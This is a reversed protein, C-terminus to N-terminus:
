SRGSRPPCPARLGRDRGDEEVPDRSIVQRGGPAKGGHEPQLAVAVELLLSPRGLRFRRPSRTATRRSRDAARSFVEDPLEDDLGVLAVPRVAVSRERLDVRRQAAHRSPEEPDADGSDAAVEVGGAVHLRLRRDHAHGLRKELAEDALLEAQLPYPAHDAHVGGPQREVRDRRDLPRGRASWGSPSGRRSRSSWGPARRRCGLLTASGPPARPKAPRSSVEVVRDVARSRSWGGCGLRARSVLTAADLPVRGLRDVEVGPLGAQREPRSRATM